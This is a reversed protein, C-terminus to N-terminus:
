VELFYNSDDAYKNQTKVKTTAVCLSSSKFTKGTKPFCQPELKRNYCEQKDDCPFCQMLM